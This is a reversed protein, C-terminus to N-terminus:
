WVNRACRVSAIPAGHRRARNLRWAASKRFRGTWASEVSRLLVCGGRRPKNVAQTTERDPPHRVAPM